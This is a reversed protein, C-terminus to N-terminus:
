AAASHPNDIAGAIRGDIANNGDLADGEGSLRGLRLAFVPFTEQALGFSGSAKRVGADYRNEIKALIRFGARGVDDHLIDLAFRQFLRAFESGTTSDTQNSFHRLRKVERMAPANDM